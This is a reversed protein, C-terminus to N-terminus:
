KKLRHRLGFGALGLGFLVMTAPEPIATTIVLEVGDNWYHCDPDFGLGFVGDIAYGNLAAIQDATFDFVLETGNSWGGLPDSWVDILYGQGEFYDVPGLVDDELAVAGLPAEDLLHLYLSDDEEVIWDRINHFRLSVSKIESDPQFDHIGWTYAQGHSLGWLDVPDPTFTYVTAQASVGLLLILFLFISKKM